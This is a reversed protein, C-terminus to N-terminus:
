LNTSRQLLRRGDQKLMALAITLDFGNETLFCIAFYIGHM